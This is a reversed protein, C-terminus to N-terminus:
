GLRILTFLEDMSVQRVTFNDLCLRLSECLSVSAPKGTAGQANNTWDNCKMADSGSLYVAALHFAENPNPSFFVSNECHGVQKQVPGQSIGLVVNSDIDFFFKLIDCCVTQFHECTYKIFIVDSM